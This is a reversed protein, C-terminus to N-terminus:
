NQHVIVADNTAADDMNVIFSYNTRSPFGLTLGGIQIGIMNNGTITFYSTSTNANFTIMSMNVQSWSYFGLGVFSITPTGIVRGSADTNFDLYMNYNGAWLNSNNVGTYYGVYFPFKAHYYGAPRPGVELDEFKKISSSKILNNSSDIQNNNKLLKSSYTQPKSIQQYIFNFENITLAKFQTNIVTHENISKTSSDNYINNVLPHNTGVIRQIEKIANQETKYQNTVEVDKKCSNFLLIMLISNIFLVKFLKNM